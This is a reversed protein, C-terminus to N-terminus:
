IHNPSVAESMWCSMKYRKEHAAIGDTVAGPAFKSVCVSTLGGAAEYRHRNLRSSSPAGYALHNSVPIPNPQTPNSVQLPTPLVERANAETREGGATGIFQTPSRTRESSRSCVTQDMRIFQSSKKKELVYQM